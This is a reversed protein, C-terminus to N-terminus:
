ASQHPRLIPQVINFLKPTLTYAALRKVKYNKGSTNAMIGRLIRCIEEFITSRQEKSEEVDEEDAEAIALLKDGSNLVAQTEATQYYSLPHLELTSRHANLHEFVTFITRCEMTQLSICSLEEEKLRSFAESIIRPLNEDVFDVESLESLEALKEFENRIKIKSEAINSPEAKGLIKFDL